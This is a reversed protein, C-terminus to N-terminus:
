TINVDKCKKEGKTIEIDSWNISGTVCAALSVTHLPIRPNLDQDLLVIIKLRFRFRFLNSSKCLSKMVLISVMTETIHKVSVSRTGYCMRCQWIPSIPAIKFSRHLIAFDPCNQFKSTLNRLLPAYKSYCMYNFLKKNESLSNNPKQKMRIPAHM